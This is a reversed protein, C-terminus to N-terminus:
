RKNRIAWTLMFKHDEFWDTRRLAEGIPLWMAKAVEGEQPVLEPLPKSDDLSFAFANSIVRARSARGPTDFRRESHCAARLVDYTIDISKKGLAIRLGCEEILERLACTLLDENPEIHGGPLALLGKGPYKEREIVLVHNSQMVVADACSITVNWPFVSIQQQYWDDYAREGIMREYESEQEVVWEQLFDVTAKPLVDGFEAVIENTTFKRSFLVKRYKTANIDVDIPQYLKLGWNPFRYLYYTSDDRDSGVLTIQQDNFGVLEYVTQQVAAGWEADTLYDEVKGFIVRDLDNPFLQSIVGIREDATFPNKTTRAQNASGVLIVLKDFDSLAQNILRQHAKHATSFRGCLIAIKEM